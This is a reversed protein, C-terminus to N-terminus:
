WDKKRAFHVGYCIECREALLMPLEEVITWASRYDLLWWYLPVSPMFVWNIPILICRAASMRACPPLEAVRPSHVVKKCRKDICDTSYVEAVADLESVAWIGAMFILAFVLMMLVACVLGACLICGLRGLTACWAIDRAVTDTGMPLNDDEEDIDDQEKRKPLKRRRSM